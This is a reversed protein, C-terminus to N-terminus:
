GIPAMLQLRIEQARRRHLRNRTIQASLEYAHGLAYLTGHRELIQVANDIAIRAENRRNGNICLEARVDEAVGLYRDIGLRTFEDRAAYVLQLAESLRGTSCFAQAITLDNVHRWVSARGFRSSAKQAIALAQITHGANFEIDALLMGVIAADEPNLTVESLALANTAHVRATDWRRCRMYSYALAHTAYVMEKVLGQDRTFSLCEHAAQACRVFDGRALDLGALLLLYGARHEPRGSPLSELIRQASRLCSEAGSVNGTHLEREGIDLLTRMGLDSIRRNSRLEAALLHQARKLTALSEGSGNAKAVIAEVILQEATILPDPDPTASCLTRVASLLAGFEERRGLQDFTVILETVGAVRHNLEPSSAVVDELLLIAKDYNGHVRMGIACEIQLEAQSPIPREPEALIQLQHTLSEALREQAARRERYFQARSLGLDAAVTQRREGGLDCRQVIARWRMAHEDGRDIAERTAAELAQAVIARVRLHLVRGTLGTRVRLETILPNKRLATFNNLNRLLHQVM